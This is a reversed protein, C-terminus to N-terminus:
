KQTVTFAKGAATGRSDGSWEAKLSHKGKKLKPLTITVKGKALKGSAIAKKGEMVKVKGTAKASVGTLTVTVAGKARKGKAVTAPFSERVKASTKIFVSTKGESPDALGTGVFDATYRHSGPSGKVKLTAQGSTLPVDAKLLKSGEFFSVTGTPATSASVKATLTAKGASSSAAKLVTKTTVPNNSTFNSTPSQTAAGCAGSNAPTALQQFGAAQILPRAAASCMFGDEGFVSQLEPGLTGDALDGGRVVNYLARQASWGGAGNDLSELKVTTPYLTQQKGVSFPAIANADNKLVDDTNEHMTDDVDAGYTIPTGGNLATMQSDFFSRTGSGSQPIYPKITGNSGGVDSWNTTTGKYIALIQAGSLKAPAHTTAGSVAVGLTDVAFPFAQLGAGVETANLASSSRAFTVDANNGVGYLLAKGAGSGVPRNIPTSGHRLTIQASGVTAWSALRADSATLGANYGPVDVGHYTAGNSVNDMANETTDSGVGVLDNADPEGYAPDAHAPALAVTSAVSVAVASTALGAIISRVRM